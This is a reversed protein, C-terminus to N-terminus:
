KNKKSNIKKKVFIASVITIATAIVAQVVKGADAGNQSKSGKFM